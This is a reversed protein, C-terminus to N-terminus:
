HIYLLFSKLYTSEPHYISLPHDFASLHRSLIKVERGAQLAAQFLLRQFIEETLHYSCSSTLLLSGSPMKKMASFNIERYARCAKALDERKKVFAPPDLIVLEYDLPEKRLFDFADECIARHKESSFGNLTINKELARCAKESIEVSDVLSAGGQLAFLSFGGTYAFCNLVRKGKALRGTLARMERQDLFFGTKQSEYLDIWFSIGNELIQFSSNEEGWLLQRAEELGQKKRLFSTSKEFIARPTLLSRLEEVLFPKFNEWGQSSLQLVAVQDYIDIILGPLGDGEANILRYANTLSFNLINKRLTFAARLRKSLAEEISEKGFAIVHAAISHRPNLFAQGLLEEEHSYILAPSDGEEISQIAGSYIWHHRQLISREKGPKLRIRAQKQPM